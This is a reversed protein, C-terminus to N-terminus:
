GAPEPEFRRQRGSPGGRTRERWRITLSRPDASNRRGTACRWYATLPRSNCCRGQRYDPSVLVTPEHCGGGIGGPRDSWLPEGLSLRVVCRAERDVVGRGENGIGIGRLFEM